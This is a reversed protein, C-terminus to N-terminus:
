QNGDRGDGKRCLRERLGSGIRHLTSTDTIVNQANTTTPFANSRMVAFAIILAVLVGGMYTPSSVLTRRLARRHAQAADMAVRAAETASPSAEAEVQARGATNM